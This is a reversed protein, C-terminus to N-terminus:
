LTNLILGYILIQPVTILPLMIATKKGINKWLVGIETYDTSVGANLFTFANGYANTYRYLEFAVPSSGESCVEILAAFILTSILGYLNKPFYKHIFSEPIFTAILTSIFVGFLIWFLVMDILGKISIFLKKLEANISYNNFRQKYYENLSFDENIITNPNKEIFPLISYIYGTIIAIFFSLIIFLIGYIGFLSILLLTISLNAWPSALIFAIIASTAAGKKYLAMSLALCGHSCGSFLFGIFASKFISFFGKGHLHKSILENPVYIDILGGLIFGILIPLTIKKLYFILENRFNSSIISFLILLLAIIVIRDKFINLINFSKENKLNNQLAYKEICSTSCFWKGFAEIKGIMGCIPDYNVQNTIKFDNQM